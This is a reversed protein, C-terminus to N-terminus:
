EILIRKEFHKKGFSVLYVGIFILTGAIAKIPTLNVNGLLLWAFFTALIPQLYIYVGVVSSNLKSLGYINLLYTGMTVGVVVFVLSWWVKPTFSSWVIEQM